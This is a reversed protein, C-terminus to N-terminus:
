PFCTLKEPPINVFDRFFFMPLFLVQFFGPINDQFSAGFNGFITTFGVLKLVKQPKSVNEGGKGM